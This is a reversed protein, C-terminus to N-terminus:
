VARLLAGVERRAGEGDGDVVAHFQRKLARSQRIRAAEAIDREAMEELIRCLNNYHHLHVTVWDGRHLKLLWSGFKGRKTLRDIAATKTGSRVQERAVAERAMARAHEYADDATEPAERILTSIERM